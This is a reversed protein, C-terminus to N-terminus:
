VQSTLRARLGSRKWWSRLFDRAPKEVTLHIVAALLVSAIAPVWLWVAQDHGAKILRDIIVYGINQHVLYLPYSIDGLFLLPPMAIWGLGGKIFATFALAAVVLSLAHPVDRIFWAAVICVAIM